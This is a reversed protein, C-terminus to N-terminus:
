EKRMGLLNKRKEESELRQGRKTDEGSGKWKKIENKKEGVGMKMRGERKPESYRILYQPVKMHLIRMQIHKKREKEQNPDMTDVIRGAEELSSMTEELMGLERLVMCVVSIYCDVSLKVSYKDIIFKRTARKMLDM